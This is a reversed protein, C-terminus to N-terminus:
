ELVHTLSYKVGDIVVNGNLFASKIRAWETKFLWVGNIAWSKTGPDGNAPIYAPGDLRHPRGYRFWEKAGNAWEIAPGDDRHPYGDEYWMKTGDAWEVAPGGIRHCQDKENYWCTTGEDDVIVTYEQKM